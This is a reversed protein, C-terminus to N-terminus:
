EGTPLVPRVAGEIRAVFRQSEKVTPRAFLGEDLREPVAERIRQIAEVHRECRSLRRPEAAELTRGSVLAAPVHVAERRRGSKDAGDHRLAASTRRHRRTETSSRLPASTGCSREAM